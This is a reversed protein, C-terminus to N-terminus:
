IPVMSSLVLLLGVHMSRLLELNRGSLQSRNNSRRNRVARTVAASTGTSTYLPGEKALYGGVELRKM